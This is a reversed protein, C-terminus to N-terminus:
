APLIRAMGSGSCGCANGACCGASKIPLSRTRSRASSLGNDRAAEPALPDLNGRLFNTRDTGDLCVAGAARGAALRQEHEVLLVADQEPRAAQPLRVALDPPHTM